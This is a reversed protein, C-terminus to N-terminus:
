KKPELQHVGMRDLAEVYCRLCYSRNFADTASVYINMREDPVEGHVPCIFRRSAVFELPSEAAINGLYNDAM